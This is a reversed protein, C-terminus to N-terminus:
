VMKFICTCIYMYMFEYVDFKKNCHELGNKCNQFLKPLKGNFLSCYVTPILFPYLQTQNCFCLWPKNQTPITLLEICCGLRIVLLKKNKIFILFFHM